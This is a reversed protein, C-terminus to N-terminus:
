LSENLGCPDGGRREIPKHEHGILVILGHGLLLGGIPELGRRPQTTDQEAAHMTLVRGRQLVGEGGRLVLQAQRTGREHLGSAPRATQRQRQELQRPQRRTLTPLIIRELTQRHRHMLDRTRMQQARHLEQVDVARRKLLVLLVGVPITRAPREHARNAHTRMHQAAHPLRRHQRALIYAPSAGSACVM